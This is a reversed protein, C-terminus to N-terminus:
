YMIEFPPQYRPMPVHVTWRPTVPAQLSVDRGNNAYHHDSDALAAINHARWCDAHHDDLLNEGSPPVQEADLLDYCVPLSPSTLGMLKPLIRASAAPDLGMDDLVAILSDDAAEETTFYRARSWPQGTAGTFSAEVARMKGRRDNALAYMGNVFRRGEILTRDAASLSALYDALVLRHAAAHFYAYDETVAAMCQDRFHALATDILTKANTTEVNLAQDLGVYRQQIADFVSVLEAINAQCGSPNAQQMVQITFQLTTFLSGDQYPLGALEEDVFHGADQALARWQEVHQRVIPDDPQLFGLPEGPTAQYYKWLQRKIEPFPHLAIAHELEHMIVALLEEDTPQLTLLGTFFQVSLVSKMSGSTSDTTVFANLAPSDVIVLSPSADALYGVENTAQYALWGRDLLARLRLYRPDTHAVLVAQPDRAQYWTEAAPDDPFTMFCDVDSVGCIADLECVGNGYRADDCAWEEEGCGGLIALVLLPRICPEM